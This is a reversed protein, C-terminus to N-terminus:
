AGDAPHQGDISEGLAQPGVTQALQHCRHQGQQPIPRVGQRLRDAVALPEYATGIGEGLDMGRGVLLLQLGAPAPQHKVFEQQELERQGLASVLETLALGWGQQQQGTPLAQHLTEKGDQGKRQRLGLLPYQGFDPGVQGAGLRHGAQHLAIHAATLGDDGQGGQEAGDLGTTLPGQHGRGLHQGLLVVALQTLPQGLEM